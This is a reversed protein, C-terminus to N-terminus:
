SQYNIGLVFLDFQKTLAMDGTVERGQSQFKCTITDNIIENYENVFTVQIDFPRIRLLNGGGRKEILIIAAMYLTISAQDTIKGQSWSTGRNALSHNIQHEQDTSYTIEKVEDTVEGDITVIVDGSDYAKGNKRVTTGVISM